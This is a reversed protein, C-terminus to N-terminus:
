YSQIIPSIIEGAFAGISANRVSNFLQPEIKAFSELTSGEVREPRSHYMAMTSTFAGQAADYVFGFTFIAHPDFNKPDKTASLADLLKEDTSNPYIVVGGWLPGQEFTTLDFRTVVGFNNLGGKLATFLDAHSTRNANVVEGTSLVVEFNAVSDCAWGREPSFFGIGGTSRKTLITCAVPTDRSRIGGTLFGGVGVNGNRGGQVALGYNEIVDYVNQWRAGPGVSVTNAAPNLRVAKMASLDVTVGDEVDAFGAPTNSHLPLHPDLYLEVKTPTIAGVAFLSPLLTWYASHKSLLLSMAQPSQPQLVLRDYSRGSSHTHRFPSRM